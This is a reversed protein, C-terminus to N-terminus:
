YSLPLTYARFLTRMKRVPIRGCKASPNCADGTRVKRVPKAAVWRSNVVIVLVTNVTFKRCDTATSAASATTRSQRTLISFEETRLAFRTQEEKPLGIM